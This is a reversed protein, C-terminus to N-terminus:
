PRSAALNLLSYCEIAQVQSVSFDNITSTKMTGKAKFYFKIVHWIAFFKTGPDTMALRLPISNKQATLLVIRLYQFYFEDPLKKELAKRISDKDKFGHRKAEEFVEWLTHGLLDSFFNLGLGKFNKIAWNVREYTPSISSKKGKSIADWIIEDRLRFFQYKQCEIKEKRCYRYQLHPTSDRHPGATPRHIRGSGALPRRAGPL